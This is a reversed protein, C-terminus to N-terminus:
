ILELTRLKGSRARPNVLVEEKTPEVPKDTLIKVLGKGSWDKYYNKVIRDELSHFSIVVIRGGKEIIELAKPLAEKLASLEDNVAIRLAQFVRTAPHTRDSQTRSSVSLIINALENTTKIIRKARQEVIKKAIRKAFREEGLKWFLQALEAEHLGNVLDSARVTQNIPDMRMDLPAELNFSFGRASTELQHSSVGLDFLIGMPKINFETVIQDVHVFNNNTLILNESRALLYNNIKQVHLNYRGAVEDIAEPDIDIGVVKGGKKLIGRTHGGGGLNCDIYWQGPQINLYDLAEKLM